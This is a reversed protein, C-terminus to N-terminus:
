IIVMSIPAREAEESDGGHIKYNTMLVPVNRLAISIDSNFSTCEPASISSNRRLQAWYYNVNIIM